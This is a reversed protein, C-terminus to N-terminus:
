IDLGCAALCECRPPPQLLPPVAALTLCPFKVSFELSDQQPKRGGGPAGM